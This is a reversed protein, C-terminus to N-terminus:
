ADAILRLLTAKALHEAALTTDPALALEGLIAIATDREGRRALIGAQNVLLVGRTEPDPRADLGHQIARLRSPDDDLVLALDKWAPAFGPFRRVINPLVRQKGAINMWEIAAYDKAFGPFLEGARERRLTDLSTKCTFYGRPAMQDVREYLDQAM